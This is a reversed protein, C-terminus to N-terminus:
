SKADLSFRIGTKKITDWKYPLIKLVYICSSIYVSGLSMAIWIFYARFSGFHQLSNWILCAIGINRNDQVWVGQLGFYCIWARHFVEYM